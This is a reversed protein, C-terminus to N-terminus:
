FGSSSGRFVRLLLAAVLPNLILFSHLPSNVCLRQPRLPVCLLVVVPDSSQSTFVGCSAVIRPCLLAHSMTTRFFDYPLNVHISLISLIFRFFSVNQGDKDGPATYPHDEEHLFIRMATVAQSDEFLHTFNGSLLLSNCPLLCSLFQCPQVPHVPYISYTFVRPAFFSSLSPLIEVVSCM